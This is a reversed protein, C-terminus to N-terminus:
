NKPKMLLEKNYFPIFSITKFNNLEDKYVENPIYVKHEKNIVIFHEKIKITQNTFTILNQDEKFKPKKPM